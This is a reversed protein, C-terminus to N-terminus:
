LPKIEIITRPDEASYILEVTLRRVCKMNDDRLINADVLADLIAGSVNDADGRRNHKGVLCVDISVGELAREQTQQALDFSANDKWDRYGSPMYAHGSRTVRPRAKPVICGNLELIM